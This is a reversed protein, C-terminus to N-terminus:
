DRRRGALEYADLIALANVIGAAAIFRTGYDGAARSLDPGVSELWRSAFYFVGSGADALFGLTGFPGDSGPAFADGRMAYGALALGAVAIFFAVGKIWRRLLIHGLGPVLWAALAFAPAFSRRTRQPTVAEVEAAESLHASEQQIIGEHKHAPEEGIPEPPAENM